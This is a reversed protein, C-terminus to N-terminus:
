TVSLFPGIETLNFVSNSNEVSFLNLFCPNPVSEEKISLILNKM